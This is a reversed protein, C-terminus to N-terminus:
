PLAMPGALVSPDGITCDRGVAWVTGAGTGGSGTGAGTSGQNNPASSPSGTPTARLPSVVIVAALTGDYTGLDAWVARPPNASKLGLAELCAALGAPTGVSGIASSGAAKPALPVGTSQHRATAETVLGSSTYGTGSMQIHMTAWGSGGAGHAGAAFDPAAPSNLDPGVGHPTSKITGSGAGTTATSAAAPLQQRASSATSGGSLPLDIQMIVVTGIIAVAAAAGGLPILQRSWRPRRRAALEDVPQATGLGGVGPAAAGSGAGAASSTAASRTRVEQEHALSATIRAILEPPMPGPEPLSSLLARVGTPDDDPSSGRPHRPTIM